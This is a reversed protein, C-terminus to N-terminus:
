WSMNPQASSGGDTVSLTGTDRLGGEMVVTGHCVLPGIGYGGGTLAEISIVRQSPGDPLGVKANLLNMAGPSRMEVRQCPDNPQATFAAVPGEAWSGYHTGAPACGSLLIAALGVCLKMTM